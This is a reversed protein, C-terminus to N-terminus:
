RRFYPDKKESITGESAGPPCALALALQTRTLAALNPLVLHARSLAKPRNNIYIAIVRMGARRGAEVGQPSDEIVLCDTPEVGLRTAATLFVAPDPKGPMNSGSVVNRFYPRLSLCELLLEIHDLPAMSAVAQLSHRSFRKVWRLVGPTRRVKHPALELFLIEKRRRIETAVAPDCGARTLETLTEAPSCGYLPAYQERTVQIGFDALVSQWTRFHLERTDALVGDM